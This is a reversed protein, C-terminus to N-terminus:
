MKNADGRRRWCRIERREHGIVEARVPQGISTVLRFLTATVDEVKEGPMICCNVTASATQPPANYAHGGEL